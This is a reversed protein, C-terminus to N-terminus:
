SILAVSPPFQCNLPVDAISFWDIRACAGAM